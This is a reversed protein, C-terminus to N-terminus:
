FTMPLLIFLLVFMPLVCGIRTLFLSRITGAFSIAAGRVPPAAKHNWATYRRQMDADILYDFSYRFTRKHCLASM